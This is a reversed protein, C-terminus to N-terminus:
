NAYNAAAPILVLLDDDIRLPVQKLIRLHSKYCSMWVNASETISGKDATGEEATPFLLRRHSKAM